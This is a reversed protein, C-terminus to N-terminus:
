TNVDESLLNQLPSKGCVQAATKQVNVKSMPKSQNTVYVGKTNMKQIPVPLPFV